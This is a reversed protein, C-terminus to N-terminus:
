VRPASVPSAEAASARIVTLSMWNMIRAWSVLRAENMETVGSVQAMVRAQVPQLVPPMDCTVNVRQSVKAASSQVQLLAVKASKFLFVRKALNVSWNRCISDAKLRVMYLKFANTSSITIEFRAQSVAQMHFRPDSDYLKFMGQNNDRM